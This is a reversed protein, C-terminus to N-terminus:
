AKKGHSKQLVDPPAAVRLLEEVTTMGTKVKEFGDEFMLKMGQKCALRNLETSTARAIILEEIDENMQILEYIGVRGRYGTQGCTECGKGHYLTVPGGGTFFKEAGPFLTKKEAGSVTYSTRCNPCIRRVLRQGMVVELTSALLFPEVGMELLRPIATAADNAHLTSFLLHGTLAANVSIDATEGDRIEGVLIIDPDQRVLSRLGTAFTLNAKSNVQIHNIGAIKYEVPDEITSINVDPSNRLKMLAYLTTSKGSGTPGTTLIMGFPKHAASRLIAQNEETFGLDGLTLHRVYESLLRMVVKEGDVLPVISVRIDLASGTPLPHRIAGDQAAFHEDIRMTADIKIRNLVGDYHEKPIRGAEHMVGDVRFRVIVIKEQPEFHIDSARLQIADNIIEELIEPAVKKQTEIIQQFRTALPKKYHSLLADIVSQPAYFLDVKGAFREPEAKKKGGFTFGSKKQPAKKKSKKGKGAPEEKPLPEPMIAEKKGLNLRVAEELLENGPDATAVAVSKAERKVVVACFARAIEEPLAMIVEPSPPTTQTDFFKLHFHEALANEYLQQTLLGQDTLLSKLNLKLKKAQEQSRQLEEPSIYSQELLIQGLQEDTLPM